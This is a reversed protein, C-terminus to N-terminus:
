RPYNRAFEAFSNLSRALGWTFAPRVMRFGIRGVAGLPLDLHESWIFTSGRGRPEVAFVASGRVIRGTHVVECRRPPDWATVRMTDTVGLPGIGTTAAVESGVSRGDGAVVRVRTGLMWEGQREWDLAAAFVAEPPADLDVRLVIDTSM